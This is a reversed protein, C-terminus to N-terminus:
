HRPPPPTKKAHPPNKKKASPTAKGAPRKTHTSHTASPTAKTATTM